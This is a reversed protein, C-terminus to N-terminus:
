RKGWTADEDPSGSAIQYGNRTAWERAAAEMQANNCNLLVNATYEDGSKNLTDILIGESGPEARRVFFSIAGAIVATDRERWAALLASVASPANIGGLVRAAKRRFGPDSDKLAGVMPEVVPEGFKSLARAAGHSLEADPDKLADILPRIARPDKIEGLATAAEGRPSRGTDVPRHAAEEQEIVVPDIVRLGKDELAAILADVARPDKMKGLVRAACKRAEDGKSDNLEAIFPEIVVTIRSKRLTDLGGFVPGYCGTVQSIAELLPHMGLVDLADRADRNASSDWNTTQLLVMLPDVARLDKIRGLAQAAYSQAQSDSDRLAAILADVVRLDKIEGLAQVARERVQADPDRLTATLADVARPDKIEGLVQASCERVHADPHRLTAILAVVARPDKIEGLAETAHYRVDTDSDKLAATLPEVARSDKIWVSMEDLAEAADERLQFDPSQLNTILHGLRALRYV